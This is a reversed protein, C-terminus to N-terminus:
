GWHWSFNVWPAVFSDYPGLNGGLEVAWRRGFVRVGLAYSMLPSGSEAFQLRNETVLALHNTLRLTGAFTGTSFFGSTM